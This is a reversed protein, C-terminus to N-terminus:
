PVVEPQEEHQYLAMVTEELEPESLSLESLELTALTSVLPAPPGSYNATLVVGVSGGATTATLGGIGQLSSLLQEARPAEAAPVGVRLRRPAAARLDSLAAVTLLQGRSLVAIQEAVQEIEPLVHSSLFVTKGEAVAGRTLSLFERQLIPDLGSTPEDLILLEADRLFAQALGIKQKNGKSLAGVRRDMEVGLRGVLEHLRAKSAGALQRYFELIERGTSQEPLSLEGPLYSVLQRLKRGDARPNLGLVRVSGATPRLVDLLLRMTTTKGSGNPGILGFVQSASVTLDLSNLALTKGFRKSLGETRIAEVM